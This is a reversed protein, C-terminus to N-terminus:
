QPRKHIHKNTQATMKDSGIIDLSTYMEQNINLFHHHHLKQTFKYDQSHCTKKKNKKKIVSESTIM